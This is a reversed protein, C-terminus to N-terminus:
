PIIKIFRVDSILERVDRKNLNIQPGSISMISLWALLYQLVHMHIYMLTYVM